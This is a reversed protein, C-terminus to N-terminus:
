VCDRETTICDGQSCHVNKNTQQSNPRQSRPTSRPYSRLGRDDFLNFSFNTNNGNRKRLLYKYLKDVM